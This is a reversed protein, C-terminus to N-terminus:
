QYSKHKIDGGAAVADAWYPQHALSGGDVNLCQGTIFSSRDSALFVLANAVDEALGLRPTLHHRLMMDGFPGAAYTEATSPTVILGPSIANCRIGEKGHQTAVYKTLMIIGAKSTGYATIGDAGAHGAGSATNIISGGGRARLAPIAYKIALMTGRLNIRMIADWVDVDMHEVGSDRTSSLRTDAANNFLVDLGGFASVTDTILKEISTESELDVRLALAEGGGVRVKEAQREAGDRNIDAVVIRAGESALVQVAAAGIGSAGGTVIVVKELLLSM